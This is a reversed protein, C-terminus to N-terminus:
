DAGALATVAEAFERGHRLFLPVVLPHRQGWSKLRLYRLGPFHTREVAATASWPRFHAAGWLDHCWLGAPSVRVEHDRLSIAVLPITILTVLLLVVLRGELTLKGDDVALLAFSLGLNVLAVFWTWVKVFSWHFSCSHEPVTAEPASFPTMAREWT